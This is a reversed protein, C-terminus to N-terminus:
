IRFSGPPRAKPPNFVTCRLLPRNVTLDIPLTFFDPVKFRLKQLVVSRSHGPIQVLMKWVLNSPTSIFALVCESIMWFYVLWDRLPSNRVSRYPKHKFYFGYVRISHAMLSQTGILDSRRNAFFIPMIAKVYMCKYQGDYQSQSMTQNLKAAM